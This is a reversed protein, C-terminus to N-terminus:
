ERNVRAHINTRGALHTLRLQIQASMYYIEQLRLFVLIDYREKERVYVCVCLCLCVYMCMPVISLFFHLAMQLFNHM